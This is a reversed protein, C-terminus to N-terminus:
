AQDGRVVLVVPPLAGNIVYQRARQLMRAVLCFFRFWGM